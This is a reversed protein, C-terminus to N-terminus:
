PGAPGREVPSSLWAREGAAVRGGRNRGPYVGLCLRVSPQGAGDRIVQEVPFNLLPM